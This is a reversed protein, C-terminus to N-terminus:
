VATARVSVEFRSKFDAASLNTHVALWSLSPEELDTRAAEHLSRAVRYSEAPIDVTRVSIHGSAPDLLQDLSVPTVHGGNIAILAGSGGNLLYRVVGYGLTRTYETDFPVPRACRLEYGIDKAVVTADIGVQELTERVRDRLVIGLPIDAIHVHGYADRELGPAAALSDPNM